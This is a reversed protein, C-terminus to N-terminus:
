TFVLLLAAVLVAAFALQGGVLTAVMTWTTPQNAVRGSLATTDAQLRHLHHDIGRVLAEIRFCQNELRSLRAAMDPDQLLCRPVGDNGNRDDKPFPIVAGPLSEGKPSTM